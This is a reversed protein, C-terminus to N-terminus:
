TQRVKPLGMNLLETMREKTDGERLTDLIATVDCCYKILEDYVIPQHGRFDREIEGRITAWSSEDGGLYAFRQCVQRGGGARILALTGAEM